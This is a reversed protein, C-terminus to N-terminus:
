GGFEAGLDALAMGLTLALSKRTGHLMFRRLPWFKRWGGCAIAQNKPEVGV